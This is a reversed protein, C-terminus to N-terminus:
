SAAALASGFSSGALQRNVDAGLTLLTQILEVNGSMIALVLLSHGEENVEEPNIRGSQWWKPLIQYFGFRCIALLPNSCSRLQLGDFRIRAYSNHWHIYAPGSNDISGFFKELLGSLQSDAAKDGHSRIHDPWYKAAYQILNKIPGCSTSNEGPNSRSYPDSENKNNTEKGDGDNNLLSLCVKAITGHCKEAAWHHEAFYERVSLHSFRCIKTHPDLALLNYCADIVFHIDMDPMITTEDEPDQSVAAVLIDASLPEESCM